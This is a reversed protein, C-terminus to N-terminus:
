LLLRDRGTQSKGSGWDNATNLTYVVRPATRVCQQLHSNLSSSTVNIFSASGGSLTEIPYAPGTSGIQYYFWDQNVQNVNDVLYSAMGASTSGVTSANVLVSSNGNTIGYTQAESRVGMGALLLLFFTCCVLRGKSAQGNELGKM